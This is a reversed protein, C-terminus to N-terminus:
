THKLARQVLSLVEEKSLERMTGDQFQILRDSVNWYQQDHSVVLVVKNRAKLEPLIEYYFIDRFAPDLDAAVEDFIYIPKDELLVTALALRKKQGNSLHTTTFAGNKFAVKDPSLGLSGLLLNVEAPDIQRGIGYVKDFLHYDSFIASFLNQYQQRNQLNVLIEKQGDEGDLRIQGRDPLYLGTILKLFTSQVYSQLLIPM